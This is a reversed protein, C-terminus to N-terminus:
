SDDGGHRSAGPQRVPAATPTAAMRCRAPTAPARPDELASFLSAFETM